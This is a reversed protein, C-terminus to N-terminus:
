MDEINMCNRFCNCKCTNVYCGYSLIYAPHCENECATGCHKFCRGQTSYEGITYHITQGYKCESWEEQFSYSILLLILFLATKMKILETISFM